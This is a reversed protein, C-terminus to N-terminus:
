RHYTHSIASYQGNHKKASHIFYSLIYIFRLRWDWNIELSFLPLIFLYHCHICQGWTLQDYVNTKSAISWQVQESDTFDNKKEPSSLSMEAFAFWDDPQNWHPENFLIHCRLAIDYDRRSTTLVYKEALEMLEYSKYVFFDIRFIYCVRGM